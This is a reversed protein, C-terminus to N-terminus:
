TGGLKKTDTLEKDQFNLSLKNLRKMQGPQKTGDIETDGDPSINV